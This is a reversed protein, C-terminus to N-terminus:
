LVYRNFRQYKLGSDPLNKQIFHPLGETGQAPQGLPREGGM